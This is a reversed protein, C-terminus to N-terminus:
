ARTLGAAITRAVPAQDSGDLAFGGEMELKVVVSIRPGEGRHPWTSTHVLFPHCVYVDGARGVAYAARRTLVSPDLKAVLANGGMGEAGCPALVAPVALHSGPLMGMPSDELGTDTLLIMAFLGRGTSWLDTHYEEAGMWNGEVHWGTDPPPGESPFRVPVVDGRSGPPMWRGEGVLLDYAETLAPAREAAVLADDQCRVRVVPQTWTSRDDPDVGEEALLAWVAQRSREVLDGEVGGELVAFGDRCFAEVDLTM